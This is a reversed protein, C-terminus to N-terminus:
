LKFIKEKDEQWVSQVYPDTSSLNVLGMFDKLKYANNNFVKKGYINECVARFWHPFKGTTTKIIKHVRTRTLPKDFIFGQSTGTPFIYSEEESDPIENLWAEFIFTFWALNGTKPLLIEKRLSGHKVTEVNVLLIHDEYNRFQKRKLRLAESIRLGALILLAVLARDRSLLKDRHESKYPWETENVIKELDGYLRDDLFIPVDKTKRKDHEVAKLWLPKAM